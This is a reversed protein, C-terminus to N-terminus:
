LASLERPLQNISNRLEDGRVFINSSVFDLVLRAYLFMGVMLM